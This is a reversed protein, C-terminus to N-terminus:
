SSRCMGSSLKQEEFGSPVTDDLRVVGCVNIV